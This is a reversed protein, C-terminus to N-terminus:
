SSSSKPFQQPLSVQVEVGEGPAARLLFSGGSREIREKMGRLGFHHSGGAETSDADFGSGDDVIDLILRNGEYTLTVEVHAPNGHHLANFVAERAVMLLDHARPHSLPFPAGAMRISVPTGFELSLQATMSEIKQGLDAVDSASQRINWIAERAEDITARLQAGAFALIGERDETGEMSLAEILASVGTCGQIVTDHMERALRTREEIVAEFKSRVQRIRYQYAAFVALAIALLCAAIFWWTRYFYPRQIVVMSAETVSDPNGLEFVQVRFRYTGPPLNTYDATRAATPTSWDKDFGDLRYHFRLGDQSRLRIPAFTFELRSNGPALVISDTAASPQGGALAAQLHLPPPLLASRQLPLVHIAGRSSPFWVDGSSAICGSPQTGGYIETNGEMEFISHFTLALHRVPVSSQADLDHRNLLSIGNPGSMWFHGDADELIQYIANSALGDDVTFHTWHGDRLRYLGNDRTGFWLGGSSDEHMAWIKLQALPNAGPIPVFKGGHMLSLGRETGIWLDGRRDVLLARISPYALGDSVFYSRLRMRGANFDIHNLGGDTGIWLSGDAAQVMARVYNNSLSAIHTTQGGAIRYLGDGDTGAWLAGARDRFVNRVHVGRLGPLTEPVIVGERLHFLRASAIWFSGDRDQYITGFDADNQTPFPLLSVPSRSLRIMGTQTGIWFNKEGDEFFNLITNSPLQAPATIHALEGGNWQFVGQGITGIWLVGDSAQRLIRVTSSIGAVRHFRSEGASMANLGAVTGVWLTGDGTQAISKIMNQSLEPGLSYRRAVGGEICILQFGGAWIRGARDQYISHVSISPIAPTGDVRVFRDGRFQVLGNDTGAWINGAADQYIARVFDNSLGEHTTWSRFQGDRYRVIGGGETGIWLAGDRSVMLCFISNENLAPTNQRDFLTFRDGDFRVLGGTTGIWLYGDATQAFSQVTQEPLGEFGQWVRRTYGALSQGWSAGCAVACLSLWAAITRLKSM